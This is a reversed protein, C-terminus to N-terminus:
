WFRQDSPRGPVNAVNTTSTSFVVSWSSTNFRFQLAWVQRSSTTPGSWEGSCRPRLPTRFGVLTIRLARVVTLGATCGKPRDPDGQRWSSKARGDLLKSKARLRAM